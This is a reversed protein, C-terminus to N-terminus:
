MKSNCRRTEKHAYNTGVKEPVVKWLKKGHVSVVTTELKVSIANKKM